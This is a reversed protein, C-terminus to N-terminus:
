HTLGVTAALLAERAQELSAAAQRENVLQEDSPRRGEYRLEANAYAVIQYRDWRVRYQSRLEDFRRTANM